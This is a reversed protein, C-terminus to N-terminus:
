LRVPIWKSPDAMNRPIMGLDVEETFEALLYRTGEFEFRAGEGAVDV